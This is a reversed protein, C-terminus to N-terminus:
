GGQAKATVFIEFTPMSLEKELDSRVASDLFSKLTEPNWHILQRYQPLLEDRKGEILVQYEQKTYNEAIFSELANTRYEDYALELAAQENIQRDREKQAKESLAKKRSTEFNEPPQINEKILYIYFGTPNTIRSGSNQHIWYDGWELQDLVQQENSASLLLKRARNEPIGRRMLEALLTSELQRENESHSREKVSQGGSKPSPSEYCFREGRKFVIKYQTRDSTLELSWGSLYHHRVLEDLSPGLKEKIKSPQSYLRLDLVQCLEGYRKEFSGANRSAYLWIQLHPVLARAIHTKLRLYNELDIQILHNSNINELQWKSLWVYNKDARRGGELESGISAVRDFVRFRDKSWVHRGDIYIMGESFITTAMM